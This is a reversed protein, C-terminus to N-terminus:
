LFARADTRARVCLDLVVIVFHWAFEAETKNM